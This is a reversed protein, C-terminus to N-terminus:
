RNVTQKLGASITILDNVSMNETLPYEGPFQQEELDVVKALEGLKTQRKLREVLEALAITKDENKSFLIVEDKRLLPM